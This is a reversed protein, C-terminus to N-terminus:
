EDVEKDRNKDKNNTVHHIMMMAVIKVMITLVKMIVLTVILLSMKADHEGAQM